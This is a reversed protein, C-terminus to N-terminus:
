CRCLSGRISVWFFNLFLEVIAAVLTISTYCSAVVVADFVITVAVVVAATAVAAAVVGVGRLAGQDLCHMIKLTLLSM